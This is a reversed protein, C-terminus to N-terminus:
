LIKVHEFLAFVSKRFVLELVRLVKRNEPFGGEAESNGQSWVLSSKGVLALNLYKQSKNM